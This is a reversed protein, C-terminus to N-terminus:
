AADIYHEPIPIPLFPFLRVPIGHSHSNTVFNPIPIPISQVPIPPLPFTFLWERADKIAVRCLVILPYLGAAAPTYVSVIFSANLDSQTSHLNSTFKPSQMPEPAPLCRSRRISLLTTLPSKLSRRIFPSNRSAPRLRLTGCDSRVTMVQVFM